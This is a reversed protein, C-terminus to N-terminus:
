PLHADKGDTDLRPRLGRAEAVRLAQAKRVLGRRYVQTLEDLRRRESESLQGERNATLLDSLEDQASADMQSACLALVQADSLLEIAPEKVARDISELVVEELRRQNQAAVAHLREALEDPLDVTVRESM